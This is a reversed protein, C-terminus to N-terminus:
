RPPLPPCPWVISVIQILAKLLGFSASAYKNLNHFAVRICLKSGPEPGNKSRLEVPGPVFFSLLITMLKKPVRERGLLPRSKQQRLGSNSIPLLHAFLCKPGPFKDLAGFTQTPGHCELCPYEIRDGTARRIREDGRAISVALRVLHFASFAQGSPTTSHALRHEKNPSLPCSKHAACTRNRSRRGFIM